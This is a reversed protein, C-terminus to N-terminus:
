VIHYWNVFSAHVRLDNWAFSTSFDELIGSNTRWKLVDPVNVQIPPNSNLTQHNWTSPLRWYNNEVIDALNSHLNFGADRIMRSTVHDRLPCFDAWIDYWASNSRGNGVSYWFHKRVMPQIQLLKQWSWSLNGKLPIDWFRQGRPRHTHIWKVWLSEKSTLLNWIHTTMLVANWTDLRRSGLGGEQKPLCVVDWAVKAVHMSSLVSQVLQLRGVFSLFKNKWNNVRNNIKEILEKCDRYILRTSVLPVGLYKVPLSGSINKFEELAEWVVRASNADGRLFILLDDAFCINTINLGSCLHHYQFVESERIKRQLLLSLVEMVLTFLYPSLPDGQCLGRKGKFFGHLTGNISVSYSTSAVCEM